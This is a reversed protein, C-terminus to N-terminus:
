RREFRAGLVPHPGEPLAVDGEAAYEIAIPGEEAGPDVDVVLRMPSGPWRFVLSDGDGSEGEGLLVEEWQRRAAARSRARM